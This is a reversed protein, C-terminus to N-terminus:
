RSGRNQATATPIAPAEAIVYHEYTDMSQVGDIRQSGVFVVPVGRVGRRYAEQKDVELDATLQADDFAAEVKVADVGSSKAAAVITTRAAHSDAPLAHGALAEYLPWFRGENAAEVLARYALSANPHSPLAYNHIAISVPRLGTLKRLTAGSSPAAVAEVDVFWTMETAGPHSAEVLHRSTVAAAMESGPHADTKALAVAQELEPLTRVGSIYRGNIFFAPTGDVGYKQGLARDAAIRARFRGSTLDQDFSSVDLGLQRAFQDLHDRDINAQNAFLLDHMPWFKGQDGAALAAEAALEAHEHFDLPYNRYIWRVTGGSQALLQHMPESARRCFPCQFDTFEVITVAADAPGMTAVPDSALLSKDAASLPANSAAAATVKGPVPMAQEVAATLAPTDQAGTLRQGNLFVTPTTDIGLARGMALDAEVQAAFRHSDLDQTFRKVDLHLLRAYGLYHERDMRAQNAQILDVMQLYKGQAGAALSAEHALKSHEHQDLPFQRLELRVKQPYQSLLKEAMPVTAASYPCELDVFM